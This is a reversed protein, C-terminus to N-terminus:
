RLLFYYAAGGVAALGAVYAWTPIGSSIACTQSSADWTGGQQSCQGVRPDSSFAAIIAPNFLLRPNITAGFARPHAAPYM